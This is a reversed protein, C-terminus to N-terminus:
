VEMSPEFGEREAMHFFILFDNAETLIKNYDRRGTKLLGSLLSLARLEAPYLVQSRVLPDPTRIEGPAGTFINASLLCVCRISQLFTKRLFDLFIDTKLVLSKSIMSKVPIKAFFKGHKVKVYIGSFTPNSGV